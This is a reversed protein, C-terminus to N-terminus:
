EVAPCDTGEEAAGKAGFGSEAERPRMLKKYIEYGIKDCFM